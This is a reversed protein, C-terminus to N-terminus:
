RGIPRASRVALREGDVTLTTGHVYDAYETALYVAAAAIEDPAPFRWEGHAV